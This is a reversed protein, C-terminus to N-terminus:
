FNELKGGKERNLRGKEGAERYNFTISEKKLDASPMKSQRNSSTHKFFSIKAKGIWSIRRHKLYEQNINEYKLM